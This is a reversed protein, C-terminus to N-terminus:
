TQHARTDQCVRYLGPALLAVFGQRRAAELFNRVAVDVPQRMHAFDRVRRAVDDVAVVAGPRFYELVVVAKWIAPPRFVQDDSWLEQEVLGRFKAPPTPLADFPTSVTAPASRETHGTRRQPRVHREATSSRMPRRSAWALRRELRDLRLKWLRTLERYLWRRAAETSSSLQEELTPDAPGDPQLALNRSEKWELRAHGESGSGTLLTAWRRASDVVIESQGLALHLSDGAADVFWIRRARQLSAQQASTLDTALYRMSRGWLWVVTAGTSRLDEDRRRWEVETIPSFQVEIVLARCRPDSSPWITVDPRRKVSGSPREVEAIMGCSEAWLQLHMKAFWHRASEGVHLAEDVLQAHRFYDAVWTAGRWYGSVTRLAPASCGVVPCELRGSACDARLIVADGQRISVARGAVTDWAISMRHDRMDLGYVLPTAALRQQASPDLRVAPSEDGDVRTACGRETIM